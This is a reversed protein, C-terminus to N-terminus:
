VQYRDLATLLLLCQSTLSAGLAAFSLLEACWSLLRYAIRGSNAAQALYSTLRSTLIVYLLDSAYSKIKNVTKM